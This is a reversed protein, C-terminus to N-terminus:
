NPEIKKDEDILGQNRVARIDDIMGQISQYRERPNKAIARFVIEDIQSPLRFCKSVESPPPPSTEKINKFTDQITRGRFPERLAVMEYMVVGMSFIDSREDVMRNGQVQEPSMYLPTGPRQGTKTLRQFVESDVRDDDFEDPLGWVKAVGWDMLIVENFLGVMINEPKVDRHIVGHAHAYSLANSAQIIIGLLRTLPFAEVTEPDRRAIRSLIRFLNEGQIKKMSFYLCGEDDKGIEYVPVTNPHQLQATVRAERLLRRRHRPDDNQSKPLRKVIVQRCLNNDYCSHLVGGGGEGAEQFNGYKEYKNSFWTPLDPDTTSIYISPYSDKNETM